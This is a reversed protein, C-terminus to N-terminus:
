FFVKHYYRRDTFQSEVKQRVADMQENMVKGWNVDKGPHQSVLHSALATAHGQGQQDARTKMYNVYVEHGKDEYDVFAVTGPAAGPEIEERPKKLLRGNAGYRIKRRQEAFGFDHPEPDGANPDVIAMRRPKGWTHYELPTEGQDQFQEPNLTM